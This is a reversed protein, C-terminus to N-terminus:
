TTEESIFKDFDIVHPAYNVTCIKMITVNYHQIMEHFVKAETICTKCPDEKHRGCEPCTEREMATTSEPVDKSSMLISEGHSQSDDNLGTNNYIIDQKPNM